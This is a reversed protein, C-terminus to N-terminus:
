KLIQHPIYVTLGDWAAIVELQENYENKGMYCIEGKKNGDCSTGLICHNHGCFSCMQLESCEDSSFKVNDTSDFSMQAEKEIKRMVIVNKLKNDGIYRQSFHTLILKKAGIKKAFTGAMNATSHGREAILKNYAVALDSNNALFSKEPLKQKMCNHRKEKEESCNETHGVCWTDFSAALSDDKNEELDVLSNTAEHILVDADKAFKKLNSPDCTDQCIVIKREKYIEKYADEFTLKTNDPFTYVDNPKMKSIISEYIKYPTFELYKCLKLKKYNKGIIENIYSANFKNKVNKEKIIYGATPVTHKISFGTIEVYENSLLPYANEENVYIYKLQKNENEKKEQSVHHVANDMQQRDKINNASPKTLATKMGRTNLHKLEYVCYNTIRKAYTCNFSNKLYRYLGEPGYINIKNLGTLMTLVSILGLCHDGHLHTIFINKIQSAKINAKQLSLFTNEGCDFLFAENFEKKTTQFIFSSTGRYNSPYMSGTGLFILKWDSMKQDNRKRQVKIDSTEYDIYIDRICIEYKNILNTVVKEFFVLKKSVDTTIEEVTKEDKPFDEGRIENKHKNENENDNGEISENSGKISDKILFFLLFQFLLKELANNNLFDEKQLTVCNKVIIKELTKKWKQLKESYYSFDHQKIFENIKELYEENLLLPPGKKKEKKEKKEISLSNSNDFVENLKSTKFEESIEILDRNVFLLRDVGKEIRRVIEIEEPFTERM